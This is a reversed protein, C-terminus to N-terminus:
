GAARATEVQSHELLDRVDVLTFRSTSLQADAYRGGTANADFKHSIGSIAWAKKPPAELQYNPRIGIGGIGFRVTVNPDHLANTAYKIMNALIAQFYEPQRVLLWPQESSM